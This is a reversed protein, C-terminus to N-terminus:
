QGESHVRLESAVRSAPSASAAASAVVNTEVAAAVAVFALL